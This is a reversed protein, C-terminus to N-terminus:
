VPPWSTACPSSAERTALRCLMSPPHSTWTWAFAPFARPVRALTDLLASATMGTAERRFMASCIVRRRVMSDLGRARAWRSNGDMIVGVHRPLRTKPFVDDDDSESTNKWASAGSGPGVCPPSGSCYCSPCNCQMCFVVAAVVVAAQVTPLMGIKVQPRQVIRDRLPVVSSQHAGQDDGEARSALLRHSRARLLRVFDREAIDRGHLGMAHQGPLVGLLLKLWESHCTCLPLASLTISAM